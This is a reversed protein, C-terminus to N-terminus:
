WLLMVLRLVTVGAHLKSVYSHNCTVTPGREVIAAAGPQSPFRFFPKGRRRYYVDAGPVERPSVDFMVEIPFNEYLRDHHALLYDGPSLRLARTERVTVDRNMARSAARAALTALEPEDVDRAIEYSGRDILAYREWRWNGRLQAHQALEPVIIM